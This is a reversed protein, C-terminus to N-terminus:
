TGPGVAEPVPGVAGRPRPSRGRSRAVTCDGGAAFAQQLAREARRLTDSVTEDGTVVAAGASVVVPNTRLAALRRHLTRRVREAVSVADDIGGAAGFVVIVGETVPVLLDDERLRDRLQECVVDDHPDRRPADPAGVRVAVVGIRAPLGAAVAQTEPVAAVSPAGM